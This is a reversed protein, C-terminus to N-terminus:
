IYACHTMVCLTVEYCLNYICFWLFSLEVDHHKLVLGLGLGLVLGLM